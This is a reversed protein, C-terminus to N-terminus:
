IWRYRKTRGKGEESLKIFQKLRHLYKLVTDKSVKLISALESSSYGQHTSLIKLIQREKDLLGLKEALIIEPKALFITTILEQNCFQYVPQNQQGTGEAWALIKDVGSGVEEIFGAEFFVRALIPNRSYQYRKLEEVKFGEQFQAPNHCVIRDQYLHIMIHRGYDEYVRHVLSNVILERLILLPIVPIKERRLTEENLYELPPYNRYIEAVIEELQELLTGTFNKINKLSNSRTNGNLTVMHNIVTTRAQVLFQGPNKAFLLIGAITPILKQEKALLCNRSLLYDIEKYSKQTVQLFDRVKTLSLITENFSPDFIQLDYSQNKKHSLMVEIATASMKQSTSGVRQYAIYSAFHPRLFSKEVIIEIIVKKTNIKRTLILPRIPPDTKRSIENALNELTNKGLEIGKKTGDDSIGIFIKGGTTNAFAVVAKAIAKYDLNLKFEINQNEKNPSQM